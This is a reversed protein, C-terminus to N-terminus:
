AKVSTNLIKSSNSVLSLHQTSDLSELSQTNIVDSHLVLSISQDEGCDLLICPKYM